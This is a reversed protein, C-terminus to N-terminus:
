EQEREIIQSAIMDATHTWLVNPYKHIAETYQRQADNDGFAGMHHRICAIEEPALTMISSLYAVSKTGHGSIPTNVWVYSNGVKRYQDIKCLDHFLGIVVPSDPFPWKLEQSLTLYVLQKAVNLSHDFLGGEYSGHFKTSAPATFFGNKELYDKVEPTIRDSPCIKLFEDLLEKREM